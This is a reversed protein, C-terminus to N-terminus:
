LADKQNLSFNDFIDWSKGNHRFLTLAAAPFSNHYKRNKFEEWVEPFKKSTLDRSALTVHPHFSRSMDQPLYDVPKELLDRYLLQLTLNDVVKIFVVRKGFHGFNDLEVPFQSHKQAVQELGNLFLKKQEKKLRVPPVLTIHGPLKLAHTLAFKKKLELKMELVEEKIASPPVIAVFYLDGGSTMKLLNFWEHSYPNGAHKEDETM